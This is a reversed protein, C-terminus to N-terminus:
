KRHLYLLILVRHKVVEKRLSRESVDGL